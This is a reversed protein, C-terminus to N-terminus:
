RTKARNQEDTNQLTVNPTQSEYNSLFIIYCEAGEHFNSPQQSNTMFNFTNALLTGKSYM